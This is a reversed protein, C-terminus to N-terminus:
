GVRGYGETQGLGRDMQLLKDQNIVKTLHILYNQAQLNASFM